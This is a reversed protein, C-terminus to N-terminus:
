DINDIDPFTDEIIKQAEERPIQKYAVLLDVLGSKTTVITASKREDIKFSKEIIDKLMDENTM